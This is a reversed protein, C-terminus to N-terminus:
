LLVPANPLENGVDPRDPPYRSLVEAVARVGEIAGLEFQGQRFHDRMRDCVSQWESQPVRGEGVARDTVIEVDRDALLVYILVGNNHETDWVGLQSFASTAVERPTMGQWLQSISLASEVAFRIEGPHSSEADRIAREIADLTSKPFARQRVIAGTSLHRLWRKLSVM